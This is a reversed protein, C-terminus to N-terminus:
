ARSIISPAKKRENSNLINRNQKILKLFRKYRQSVTLSLQFATEFELERKPDDDGIVLIHTKKKSMFMM